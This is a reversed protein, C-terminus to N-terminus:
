WSSNALSDGFRCTYTPFSIIIEVFNLMSEGNEDRNVEEDM